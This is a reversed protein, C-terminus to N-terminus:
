FRTTAIGTVTADSTTVAAGTTATVVSGGTFSIGTAHFIEMGTTGKVNVNDFAVNSIKEEPLGWLIGANTSGVATM